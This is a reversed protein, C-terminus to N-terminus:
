GGQKAERDDDEAMEIAVWIESSDPDLERALYLLKLGAEREGQSRMSKGRLCWARAHLPDVETAKIAYKLAIGPMGQMSKLNAYGYLVYVDKSGADIARKFFKRAQKHRGYLSMIYGASGWDLDQGKKLTLSNEIYDYWEKQLADLDKVRLFKKFVRLVEDGQISKYELGVSVRRVGKARALGLFFKKFNKEYKPTSLLFHCLSWAWSYGIADMKQVKLLTELPLRKKEDKFEEKLVALRGSQLQGITMTKELPDWSSAGFYEAMGEGVWWPYMFKEDIMHTLMHNGEHFMVDITFRRNERDVYFNLDRSLLNYYGVVGGGVGGVQAFYERDHYINITCKGYKPSPKVKWYKTFYAYYAEFLDKYQEFVEDPLTHKFIFRKTEVTVHNRWLRREKMQQLRKKQAEKDKKRLRDRQSKRVWKGKWPVFGKEFKKKEKETRPVFEGAEDEEYWASVMEKPLTIVGNEFHIEYGKDTEDIRNYEFSRGDKLVVMDARVPVAALLLCFLITRM